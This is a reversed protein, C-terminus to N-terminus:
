LMRMCSPWRCAAPLRLRPCAAAAAAATSPHRPSHRSGPRARSSGAGWMWVRALGYLGAPGCPARVKKDTQKRAAQRAIQQEVNNGADEDSDEDGFVSRKQVPATPKAKPKAGRVDLGYKVGKQGILMTSIHHSCFQHGCHDPPPGDSCGSNSGRRKANGFARFRSEKASEPQLSQGVSCGFYQCGGM